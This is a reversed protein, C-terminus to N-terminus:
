SPLERNLTMIYWNGIGVADVENDDHFQIKFKREMRKQVVEKPTQGKWGRVTVAHFAPPVLFPYLPHDAVDVAMFRVMGALVQLKGVAGSNLAAAGRGGASAGVWEEPWEYVIDTVGRVLIKAQIHRVMAICRMDWSLEESRASRAVCWTGSEELRRDHWLAWGSKSTAMDLSLVKRGNLQSPWGVIEIGHSQSTSEVCRTWWEREDNTGM